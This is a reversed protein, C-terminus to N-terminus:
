PDDVLFTRVARDTLREADEEGERVLSVVINALKLRAADRGL